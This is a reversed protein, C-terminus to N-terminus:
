EGYEYVIRGCEKFLNKGLNRMVKDDDATLSTTTLLVALVAIMKNKM